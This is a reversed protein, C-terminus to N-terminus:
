KCFLGGAPNLGVAKHHRGLCLLVEPTIGSRCPLMSIVNGDIVVKNHRVTNGDDYM